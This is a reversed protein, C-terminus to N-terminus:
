WSSLKILGMLNKSSTGILISNKKNVRVRSLLLRYSFLFFVEVGRGPYCPDYVIEIYDYSDNIIGQWDYLSRVLICRKVHVDDNIMRTHNSLLTFSPLWWNSTGEKLSIQDEGQSWRSLANAPEDSLRCGQKSRSLRPQRRPILPTHWEWVQWWGSRLSLPWFDVLLLHDFYLRDVLYLNFLCISTVENSITTFISM